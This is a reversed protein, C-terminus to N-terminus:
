SSAFLLGLLMDKFAVQNISRKRKSKVSSIIPKHPCHHFMVDDGSSTVHSYVYKDSGQTRSHARVVRMAFMDYKLFGKALSDHPLVIRHAQSVKPQHVANPSMDDNPGKFRPINKIVPVPSQPVSPLLFSSVFLIKIIRCAHWPECPPESESTRADRVTSSM